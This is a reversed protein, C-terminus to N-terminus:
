NFEGVVYDWTGEGHGVVREFDIRRRLLGSPGRESFNVRHFHEESGYGHLEFDSWNNLIRAANQRNTVVHLFQRLNIVTGYEDVIECAYESRKESIYYVLDRLSNIGEEPRVHLAFTWGMSSKGLHIKNCDESPNVPNREKLYYNTSM